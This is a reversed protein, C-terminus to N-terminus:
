NTYLVGLRKAHEDFVKGDHLVLGRVATAFKNQLRLREVKQFKSAYSIPRGQGFLNATVGDAPRPLNTSMYIDFNNLTGVYGPATASTMGPRGTRLVTEAIPQASKLLNTDRSLWAKADAGIIAWRGAQPVNMANLRKEMEVLQIWFSSTDGNLSVPAGASGIANAAHAATYYSFIKDDVLENLSAMGESAYREELAYDSREGEIDEVRFAFYEADNVQFPEKTAGIEQYEIDQDKKYGSWSVRGYMPVYVTDGAERVDGEYDTNAAVALAVNERRLREIVKNSWVNVNFATIPNPM